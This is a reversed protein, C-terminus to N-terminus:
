ATLEEDPYILYVWTRMLYPLLRKLQDRLKLEFVSM